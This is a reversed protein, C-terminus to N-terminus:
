HPTIVTVPVTKNAMDIDDLDITWATRCEACRGEFARAESMDLAYIRESNIIGRGHDPPASWGLRTRSLMRLRTGDFRGVTEGCKPCSLRVDKV